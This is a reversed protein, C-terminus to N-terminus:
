VEDLWAALYMESDSKSLGAKLPNEAIYKRIRILEEPNRVIHDYSEKQWVRGSRNLSQNIRRASFRKVSYLVDELNYGNVVAVLLHIHNPMIVYDGVYWREGHFFGVSEVLINRCEEQRFVCDGHCNGLEVFLKRANMRSFMRQQKESLQQFREKWIKSEPYGAVANAELWTRREDEWKALIPKPISDALRFTLFYLANDQRWHPLNGHYVRVAQHPDFWDYRKKYL